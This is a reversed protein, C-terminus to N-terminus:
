AAAAKALATGLKERLVFYDDSIAFRLLERLPENTTALRRVTEPTFTEGEGLSGEDRIVIQAATFLDGCLVLGTRNGIQHVVTRWRLSGWSTNGLKQFLEVLQKSVKYPVNKKLKAAQEAAADGAATRRKAHRPHFARLVSAFLPTFQKPRVGAALIYEPRTLELGRAIQFRVEGASAGEALTPGVVLAPPAQVVITVGEDPRDARVYLATKKNGLAKAVQGYIRGLDMEAMPSVKDRASVGFDELRQGILGPAGAWLCSFIESMVTAERLALHESRDRDDIIGAYPDDPKLEPARNDDLFAREAPTATGLLALLEYCCRTRDPQGRRLYLAGLARLSSSRTIDANLLQRHNEVAAQEHETSEGYLVALAERAPLQEPTLAVVQEFAAMAGKPDRRELLEGHQQWLRARRARAAQQEGVPPLEALARALRADLDFGRPLRDSLDCLAALAAEDHPNESLSQDLLAAAEGVNGQEALLVAADRRRESREQPDKVLDILMASTQAAGEVEGRARQLKLTKELLSVQEESPGGSAKRAEHYAWLAQEEDDLELYLDGLQELTQARETRDSSEESLRRLYSAAKEREGRELALDALARLSARHGARLGLAAEYLEIAREPRRLKIEAQAAHGLADAVEDPYLAADPHEALSGLHLAAERWKGARFRNEGLSLKTLLQGPGMKDAELLQRYAEELKGTKEHVEALRQFLRAAQQPQHRLRRVAESLRKEAQEWQGEKYYIDAIELIAPLHDPVLALAEDLHRQAEAADSFGEWAVRALDSLVGARATPDTTVELQRALVKRAEDWNSEAALLAALAQLAEANNPDERLAAEFCARAQDPQALQERYVRGADLLAEVAEPKGSLAKAERVRAASYGAFDNAKLHLRGLAALAAPNDPSALLAAEVEKRAAAPDNLDDLKLLSLELNLEAIRGSNPGALRNKELDIRQQLVRAAEHALGARRLNRLMLALLDDDAIADAGLDRLAGAAAEPNNLRDQLIRARRRVIEIRAPGTALAARKKLVEQLEDYRGTSEDLRDLAELAQADDPIEALVSEYAEIARDPLTLEREYVGAVEIRLARAKDRDAVLEAQSKLTEVVRAWLGVRSYLRALAEYAALTEENSPPEATGREEESSERLLRELTDIAEYPRELREEYLAALERLRARREPGNPLSESPLGTRQELINALDEWREQSRCIEEVRRLAILDDSRLRLISRYLEEAQATQNLRDRLRAADHHLTVATEIPAFEDIAGLYIAVIRDWRDYEAGIRELEGRVDVDSIDLRFARDLADLARDVDHQGREWVEAIKRLYVWRDDADEAPLSEYAAALEEWPTHFPQEEHLAPPPSPPRALQEDRDEVLEEEEIVEIADDEIAVAGSETVGIEPAALLPAPTGTAGEDGAGGELDTEVEVSVVDLGAGESEDEADGESALESESAAEAEVKATTDAAAADVEADAQASEEDDRAAVPEEAPPHDYTGIQRALRWLHAVVEEDDPALRFANLYARFARVLDKVEHEVLHAANRAVTLKEGLEEALAFLQGQVRIAEEWRGTVRSLRLIEEQTRPNRPEIAFSRLTEDLAASPDNMRKERVEARLRLLEVREETETRARAVQAYVDLLSKWDGTREALRELNHLLEDGAPDSPLADVLTQFARAPDDLKEECILAIKLSAALQEIPETARERAGEYIQILEDHLGHRDAAQDVVQLNDATPNEMYARRFWEFGRAPEELHREYIDGIQLLLKRRAEPDEAAELLKEDAYALRQYNGTKEYLGAVAELAERHEPDIELVREYISIAKRDDGLRDRVVAALEMSRRVREARDDTLFLQREAIKVVRPWDEDREYTARLRAHAEANRPDVEAILRELTETAADFDRLKEDFIQARQLTLAVARDPEAALPAQRELIRVLMPWNEEATYLRALADLAEADTPLLDSLQEWAKRARERNGITGEVLRALERLFEAQEAADAVVREVEMDLVRALDEHRGLATYIQRLGALAKADDPDLRAVEELRAAAGTPDQLKSYLIEAIRRYLQLKEDPNAAHKAHMELVHVLDAPQGARELIRELRVLTDRDGPVAQLIENAAWQGQVLDGTREDYIVLVRRLLGVREQKATTLGIQERLAAALGKWDGEREFIEVLARMSVADHPDARLVERYIEIARKANGLKERHLQAVRRLIDIRLAPDTQAAAERELLAALRDWSKAKLLIRRQAERPRASTPALEEARMWAALAREPDGLQKEAVAAIEELRPLLEDVPTGAVRAREFSFELLDALAAWDGKERFHEAYAGLAIQNEPEIELVAHLYVAAQDGDGLRDRYLAALELMIRARMPPDAIAGLQRERLEALKAYDHGQLYLEVLKESAPGGPPELLSIENYIRQAEVRDGLEGEALQARKYLFDIRETEAGAGSIRERYYRDLEQFRRADYYVRELLESSETHGPLVHLAKRLSAIANDTDGAEQRRRGVQYYIAAAREVGDAGIWNPNAYVAALLELAKEDRPRIRVAESLRQAAADLEELKEGLVRGLGLLLDARRRADATGELELEYLRVVSRWDGLARYIKRASEISKLHEASLKGARQPNRVARELKAFHNLFLQGMEAELEALRGPDRTRAVAAAEMELMTMYDATRGQERYIDKLRAAARIHTPDRDVANVLDAEAGEPDGLQDLRLEAALYFLEGAKANDEIAQARTEYLTVLRDHKQAQRYTKRLAVFAETDAPNRQLAAEYERVTPM